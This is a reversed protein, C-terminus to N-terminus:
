ESRFPLEIEIEAVVDDVRHRDNGAAFHPVGRGALTTLRCRTNHRNSQRVVFGRGLEVRGLEVRFLAVLLATDGV